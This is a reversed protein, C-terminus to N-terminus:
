KMDPEYGSEVLDKKRPIIMVKEVLTISVKAVFLLEKVLLTDCHPRAM